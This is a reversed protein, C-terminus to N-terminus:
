SNTIPVESAETLARVPKPQESRQHQKWLVARVKYKARAAQPDAVASNLPELAHMRRISVAFALPYYLYWLYQISGFSSCVIYAILSAQLAASMYYTEQARVNGPTAAADPQIVARAEREVRRLSRLPAFIMVLYAILGALGLEAAIELFSNHAKRERLSYTHYNGMGVGIIPNNMAVTAARELLDRREQASGTPDSSSDFISTIRTSYGGPMAALFVVIMVVFAFGTVARKQRGIKWLLVGGMAVLGLFGGRSFTVVVAVTLIAACAFYAVRVMGSRTLALGIALPILLDLATALDNPNEFLGGGVGSIRLDVVLGDQGRTVVNFQGAMYSVIALFGLVSGCIVVLMIMSRLRERTDLLNIMLLFIVVVKLFLDTLLDISDQPSIAFPIFVIGLAAILALMKLEIPWVSVAEGRTLKSVAYVVLTIIAIIKVLPFTGFTEPFADNPRVYLLLTFLLLGAYSLGHAGRMSKGEAARDIQIASQM